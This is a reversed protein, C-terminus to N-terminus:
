APPSKRGAVLKEALDYDDDNNYTLGGVTVGDRQYWVTFGGDPFGGGREVLHATDFGDGWAAYKLTHDGITTWFGPVADWSKEVGAATAGAVEGQDVADQWHETAIHRGATPNHASAVDGAALVSDASTHMHEDVVIRGEDLDLGASEALGSNQEIGTAALILDTDIRVGDDLTVTGPEIDTVGAGGVYRVGSGDLMARIRVGADPGLRSGQPVDDPAVLTTNVGRAALSAAAECGIFGAGIVVASDAKAAADRLSTADTFSRLLLAHEGGPVPIPAPRAGTAIIATAFDVTEGTSLKATKATTDLETVSTGTLVELNRETYWDQPHLAVDDASSEGQLYDKSLPPRFYPLDPDTTVLLVRGGGGNDRYSEAASVAGPGSGIILLDTSDM